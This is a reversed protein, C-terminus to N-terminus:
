LETKQRPKDLTNTVIDRVHGSLFELNRALARLNQASHTSHTTEHAWKLLEASSTM